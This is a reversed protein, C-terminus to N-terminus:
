KILTIKNNFLNNDQQAQIFYIGDPYSSLDITINKESFSNIYILRGFSNYIKINSKQSHPLGIQIKNITPNPFLYISEKTTNTEFIYSGSDCVNPGDPIECTLSDISVCIEDIFYYAFRNSSTYCNLNVNTTDFFNGILFYEYSSDAVFSGRISFWNVTDTIITNTYINAYNSSIFDISTDGYFINTFLLGIKDIGCNSGNAMSVKFNVFYKQGTITPNILSGQIFEVGPPWWESFLYFGCYASGSSPCQHGFFNNPVGVQSITDCSNFYDASNIQTWGIARSVEGLMDPCTDYVEFSPNPVLNQTSGAMCFCLLIFTIFFIKKM